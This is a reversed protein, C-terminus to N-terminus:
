ILKLLFITLHFFYRALCVAKQALSHGAQRLQKFTLYSLFFVDWVINESPLNEFNKLNLVTAQFLIM